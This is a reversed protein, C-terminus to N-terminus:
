HFQFLIFKPLLTYHYIKLLKAVDWTKKQKIFHKVKLQVGQINDPSSLMHYISEIACQNGFQFQVKKGNEIKWVLDSQFFDRNSLM